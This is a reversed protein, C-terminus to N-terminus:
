KSILKNNYMNLWIFNNDSSHFNFGYRIYRTLLRSNSADVQLWITDVNNEVFLSSIVNEINIQAYGKNIHSKNTCVNCLLGQRSKYILNYPIYKNNLVINKEDGYLITASSIIYNDLITTSVVFSNNYFSRLVENKMFINNIKFERIVFSTIKKIDVNMINNHNYKNLKTIIQGTTM